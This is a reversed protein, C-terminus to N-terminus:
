PNSSAKKRTRRVRVEDWINWCKPMPQCPVGGDQPTENVVTPMTFFRDPIDDADFEAAMSAFIARAQRSAEVAAFAVDCIRLAEAYTQQQRRGEDSISQRAFSTPHYMIIIDSSKPVGQVALSLDLQLPVGNCICVPYTNPPPELHAALLLSRITASPPSSISHRDGTVTRLVLSVPEDM